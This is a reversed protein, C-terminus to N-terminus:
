MVPGPTVYPWGSGFVVIGLGVTSGIIISRLRIAKPDRIKSNPYNDLYSNKSLKQLFIHNKNMNQGFRKNLALLRNPLPM